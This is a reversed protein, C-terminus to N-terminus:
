GARPRVFPSDPNEELEILYGSPDRAFCRWGGWPPVQPPELFEVGLERLERYAERCDSVLFDLVVPTAAATNLNALTVGPKDPTPPSHIFLYLLMANRSLAAITPLQEVVDFGLKDRYFRVSATLDDVVIMTAAGLLTGDLPKM